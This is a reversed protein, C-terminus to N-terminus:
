FSSQITSIAPISEETITPCQDNDDAPISSDNRITFSLDKYRNWQEVEEVTEPLPNNSTEPILFILFAGIITCVGLLLRPIWIDEFQFCFM